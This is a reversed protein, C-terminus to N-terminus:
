IGSRFCLFLRKVWSVVMVALLGYRQAYHFTPFCLGGLKERWALFNTLYVQHPILATLGGVGKGEWMRAFKAPCGRAM